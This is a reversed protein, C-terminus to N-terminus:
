RSGTRSCRRPSCGRGARTKPQALEIPNRDRAARRRDARARAARHTRLPPDTAVRQTRRCCRRAGAGHPRARARRVTRGLFSANGGHLILRVYALNADIFGAQLKRNLQYVLSQVQQTVRPALGGSVTRLILHPSQVTTGLDALFGPPVTITAVVKRLRARTRGRAPEAARANGGERRRRDGDPHPLPSRRGRRRAALGGRGDTSPTKYLGPTFTLGSLNGPLVAPNQLGAAYIYAAVLDLEAQAATPNTVDMVAPPVLSGPPFGTVATGPSLGLNGGSIITPGTNTVTSGALAEFAAASGLPVPAQCALTATTFSWTFNAPLPNGPVDQAGTTITATYTTNLALNATPTFAAIRGTGDLTVIGTVGPTVTFTLNNITVPNMAENFTATVVSNPCVGLAGDAPAVAIVAPPPAGACATDATTFTWVFNSALANGFMDTAGTTITGTYNTNLALNASPTLTFIKNTVDHTVTGTVGPTVKFTTQNITAPNMAQPFTVAIVSNQCAATAGNPPTVSVPPAPPQCATAATSFTWVFNAALSGGSMAQVGTTITATYLTSLALAGPPTFIATNSAADYTVQGAVPTTGPGTLTFTTGDISSPNMAQNFTATVITNACATASGGAPVVSIVAPLGPQCM